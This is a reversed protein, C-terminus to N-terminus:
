PSIYRIAFWKAEDITTKVTSYAWIYNTIGATLTIFTIGSTKIQNNTAGNVAVCDAYASVPYDMSNSRVIFSCVNGTSFGSSSSFRFQPIFLYLGSKTVTFSAIKTNVKAAIATTIATINTVFSKGIDELQEHVNQLSVQNSTGLGAIIDGNSQISGTVTGGTLPLAYNSYNNSDLITREDKWTGSNQANWILNDNSNAMQNRIYMGYSNGDSTGNSHRISIINHWGLNTEAATSGGYYSGIFSKITKLGTDSTLYDGSTQWKGAIPIPALADGTNDALMPVNVNNKVNLKGTITGGTKPLASVDKYPVYNHAVTGRELMPKLVADTLSASSSAFILSLSLYCLETVTFTFNQGYSVKNYHIRNGSADHVFVDINATSDTFYESCGSVTYTGASIPQKYVFPVAATSLEPFNCSITLTGDGNDVITYYDTTTNSIAYPYVLLNEVPTIDVESSSGDSGTLTITDNTRSLEYTTGSVPEEINGQIVAWDVDYADLSYPNASFVVNNSEEYININSYLFIFQLTESETEAFGVDIYRENGWTLGNDTTKIVFSNGMGFIRKYAYEGGQYDYYIRDYPSYFTGIGAFIIEGYTKDKPNYKQYIMYKDYYNSDYTPLSAINVTNSRLCILFDGSECKKGAYEGNTIVQYMDGKKYTPPLEVIDGDTGITGKYTMNGTGLRSVEEELALGRDGPFATEATTGLTLSSAIEVYTTGSWRYTLRTNVDIYIKSSEPTYVNGDLDLFRDNDKDYTGDLVDDVYSPLQSTPVKGNEDLSAIGNPNGIKNKVTRQVFATTAIQPSDIDADATPALPIGTFEPSDIRAAGADKIDYEEGRVKIKTVFNSM